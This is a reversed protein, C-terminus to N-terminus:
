RGNERYLNAYVREDDDGDPMEDVVFQISTGTRFVANPAPWDFYDVDAVVKSAFFLAAGVVTSAFTSFQDINIGTISFPAFSHNGEHNYYLHNFKLHYYNKLKSPCFSATKIYINKKCTQITLVTLFLASTRLSYRM